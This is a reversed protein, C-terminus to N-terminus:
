DFYGHAFFFYFCVIALSLAVFVWELRWKRKDIVYSSKSKYFFSLCVLIFISLLVVRKSGLVLFIISLVKYLLRHNQIVTFLFIFGFIFPYINSETQSVSDRLLSTLNFNSFVKLISPGQELCFGVTSGWFIVKFYLRNNYSKYYPILLGVSALPAIVFFA